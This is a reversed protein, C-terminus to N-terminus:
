PLAKQTTGSHFVGSRGFLYSNIVEEAGRLSMTFNVPVRQGTRGRGFLKLTIVGEGETRSFRVELLHYDFDKVAELVGEKLERMEPDSAFEPNAREM